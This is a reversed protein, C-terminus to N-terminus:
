EQGLCIQALEKLGEKAWLVLPPSPSVLPESNGKEKQTFLFIAPIKMSLFILCPGCSCLGNGLGLRDRAM